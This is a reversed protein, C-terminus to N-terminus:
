EFSLGAALERLDVRPGLEDLTREVAAANGWVVGECEGGGARALIERCYLGGDRAVYFGYTRCAVPRCEYVLCAGGAQDLFPCVVPPESGLSRIRAGIQARLAPALRALGEQLLEWEPTTLRPVAALRRCCRDCGKRCPWPPASAAIAAARAHIRGILARLRTM